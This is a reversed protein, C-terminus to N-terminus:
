KLDSFMALFRSPFCLVKVVPHRKVGIVGDEEWGATRREQGLASFLSSFNVGTTYGSEPCFRFDDEAITKRKQRGM